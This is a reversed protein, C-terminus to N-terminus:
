ACHKLNEKRPKEKYLSYDFVTANFHCWCLILYVTKCSVHISIKKLSIKNITKLIKFNLIEKLTLM